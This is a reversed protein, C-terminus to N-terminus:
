VIECSGSSCALERLGMSHDEKEYRPFKEWPIVPFKALFAEYQEKTVAQNPALEYNGNDKPLFALGSIDDWNQLIWHGIEVWEHADVYITVSVSHEAWHKKFLKWNEMQQIATLEDKMLAGEAPKLPFAFVWVRPNKPDDGVEPWYPVKSDILFRSMPDISNVRVTRIIYQSYWGTIANGTESLVGFNGNPKIVTTSVSRNIGLRDAWEINTAVVLARLEELLKGRAENLTARVAPPCVTNPRLYENDCAGALDVGLLREEECNKKWDESIYKFNTMSSQLTGFITALRVKRKIDDVNDGARIV